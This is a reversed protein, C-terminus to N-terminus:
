VFPNVTQYLTNPNFNYDGSPYVATIPNTVTALTITTFSATDTNTGSLTGTGIAVGNDYFTVTGTPNAVANSGPSNISVTATFTLIPLADHLTLTPIHPRTTATNNTSQHSTNLPPLSI